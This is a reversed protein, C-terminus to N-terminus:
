DLLHTAPLDRFNADLNYGANLLKNVAFSHNLRLSSELRELAISSGAHRTRTRTPFQSMHTLLARYVAITEQVAVAVDYTEDACVSSTGKSRIADRRLRQIARARWRGSRLVHWRILVPLRVVAGGRPLWWQVGIKGNVPPQTMRLIQDGFDIARGARM